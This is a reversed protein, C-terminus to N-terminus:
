RKPVGRQLIRRLTLRQVGLRRAAESQNGASEELVRRAYEWQMRTLSPTTRAGDDSAPQSSVWHMIENPEIPKCKVDDAGAKMAAVAVSVSAVASWVLVRCGPVDRKIESVLELCTDGGLLYDVIVADFMTCALLARADDVNRAARTKLRRELVRVVARLLVEDDDVVLLSCVTQRVVGM